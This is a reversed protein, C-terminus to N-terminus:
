CGPAGPCRPPAPSTGLTAAVSQAVGRAMSTMEADAYADQSVPVRPRGDAYGAAYMVLYPGDAFSASIQRNYDYSEAAPGAFRVVSVGADLRGAGDADGAAALRPQSLGSNASAAATGTPLVAVGVTMAYSHTSDVYTARLVTQCGDRRLVAGAAANTVGKACDAQQPAIGVRLAKLNLPAVDELVTAPLQYSVAAPFIRGAALAQWRSSVQWAEIQRQESATFQRPLLAIALGFASAALGLVGVLLAIRALM